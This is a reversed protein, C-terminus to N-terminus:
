KLGLGNSGGDEKGSAAVSSSNINHDLASALASLGVLSLCLVLIAYFARKM